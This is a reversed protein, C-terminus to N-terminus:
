KGESKTLFKTKSISDVGLGGVLFVAQIKERLVRNKYATTAVFHINATRLQMAYPMMLLALFLRVVMCTRSRSESILASVTIALIEYRDGLVIVM